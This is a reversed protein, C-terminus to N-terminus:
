IRLSGIDKAIQEKLEELGAFKREPRMLRIFRVKMFEGYIDGEFGPINTEISINHGGLTPRTGINTISRFCEGSVATETEYVGNPPLIKHEDPKLNATPFGIKTGNHEGHVVYGEVYFPYGLLSNVKRIDGKVLEERIFTSSIERDGYMLKEIVRVEIGLKKGAEALTEPTGARDKGFRFDTGVVAARCKLRDVLISQVFEEPEMKRIADTFPCEILIDTGMEELLDRRESNSLITMSKKHMLKAQPLVSFTFVCTELGQEGAIEFVENLLKQHGRHVGDFKGLTVVTQIKQEIDELRKYYKM